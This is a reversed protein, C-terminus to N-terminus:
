SFNKIVGRLRKYTWYVYDFHIGLSYVKNKSKM